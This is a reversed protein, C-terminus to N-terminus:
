PRNGADQLLDLWGCRVTVVGSEGESESESVYVCERKKECECARLSCACNYPFMTASGSVRLMM